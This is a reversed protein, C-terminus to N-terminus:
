IRVRTLLVSQVLLFYPMLFILILCQGTFDSSFRFNVLLAAVSEEGWTEQNLFELIVLVFVLLQPLRLSKCNFNGLMSKM